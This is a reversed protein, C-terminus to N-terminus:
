YAEEPGDCGQLVVGRYNMITHPWSPVHAASVDSQISRAAAEFCASRLLMIPPWSHRVLCKGSEPAREQNGRERRRQRARVTTRRADRTTGNGGASPAPPLGLSWQDQLSATLS